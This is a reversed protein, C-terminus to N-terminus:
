LEFLMPRLNVRPASEKVNRLDRQSAGSGGSPLVLAGVFWNQFARSYVFMNM